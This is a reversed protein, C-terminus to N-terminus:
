IHLQSSNRYILWQPKKRVALIRQQLNTNKEAYRLKSEDLNAEYNKKYVFKEKQPQIKMKIIFDNCTDWSNNASKKFSLNIENNFIKSYLQNKAIDVMTLNNEKSKEVFLKYM